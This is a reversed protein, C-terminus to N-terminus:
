GTPVWLSSHPGSLRLCVQSLHGSHHSSFWSSPVSSSFTGAPSHWPDLLLVSSALPPLACSIPGSLSLYLVGGRGLKSALHSRGEESPSSAHPGEGSEDPPGSSTPPRSAQQSPCGSSPEPVGAPNSRGRPVTPLFSPLFAAPCTLSREPQPHPAWRLHALAAPPAGPAPQPQCPRFSATLWLGPGLLPSAVEWWPSLRSSSFEFTRPKSPLTAWDSGSAVTEPPMTIGSPPPCPARPAPCAQSLLLCCEPCWM